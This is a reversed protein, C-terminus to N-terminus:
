VDIYGLFNFYNILDLSSIVGSSSSIVAQKYLFNQVDGAALIGSINTFNNKIVYIYNSPNLILQNSFIVTNPVNGIFVFLGDLYVINLVGNILNKIKIYKLILSDGIFDFIFYNLKFILNKKNLLSKFLINEIKFKVRRHILIIKNVLSSLYIINEAASNGGGVLVINKNKYFNGDCFGCFSINSNIYKKNKFNFKPKAGSSIILFDSLFINFKGFNLIPKKLFNILYIFDFLIELNMSKLQNFISNM